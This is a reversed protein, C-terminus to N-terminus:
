AETIQFAGIAFSATDGNLVPKSATLLGFYLENGASSADMLTAAVQSAATSWDGTATAFTIAVGNSIVGGSATPWNTTNSTISKRAYGSGTAETGSSAAATPTVSYLAAYTTAPATFTAGTLVYDLIQNALYTGKGSAM